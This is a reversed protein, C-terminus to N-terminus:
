RGCVILFFEDGSAAGSVGLTGGVATGTTASNVAIKIASTAMSIPSLLHWLVTNFGTLVNQTAADATCSIVMINNKGWVTKDKVNLTYAM